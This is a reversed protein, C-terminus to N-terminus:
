PLVLYTSFDVQWLQIKCSLLLEVGLQIIQLCDGYLSSKAEQRCTLALTSNTSSISHFRHPLGILAPLWHGWSQRNAEAATDQHQTM